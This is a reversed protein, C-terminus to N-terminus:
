LAAAHSPWAGVSATSHRCGSPWACADHREAEESRKPLHWIVLYHISFSTLPVHTEIKQTVQQQLNATRNPWSTHIHTTFSKTDRETWSWMSVFQLMLLTLVFTSTCALVLFLHSWSQLLPNGVQALTASKMPFGPRSQTGSYLFYLLLSAPCDLCDAKIDPIVCM